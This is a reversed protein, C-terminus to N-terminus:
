HSEFHYLLIIYQVVELYSLVSRFNVAYLVEQGGIESRVVRLKWEM